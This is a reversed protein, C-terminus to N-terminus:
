LYKLQKLLSYEIVLCAFIIEIPYHRITSGNPSFKPSQNDKNAVNSKPYYSYGNSIENKRNNYKDAYEVDDDYVLNTHRTPGPIEAFYLNM